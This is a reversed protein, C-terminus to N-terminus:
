TGAQTSLQAFTTVLTAAATVAMPPADVARTSRRCQTGDSADPDRSAQDPAHPQEVATVPPTTESSLSTDEAAVAASSGWLALVVALATATAMSSMRVM